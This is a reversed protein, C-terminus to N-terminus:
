VTLMEVPATVGILKQLMAAFRASDGSTAYRDRGRARGGDADISGLVRATQRAVAASPDILRAREGLISELAPILFPFHTCALAIQDAGADLLPEVVARMAALSEPQHATGAEVIRVLEPAPAAIVRVAPAYRAAIAKFRAGEATIPTSLVGIVGSRTAEAAPKIAPEVGVFPVQPWRARLTELAAETASHCALVIVRAGENILWGVIPVVFARIEDATRGGYPLHAQDAAYLTPVGPLARHIERLVSLGGVGSDMVGIM